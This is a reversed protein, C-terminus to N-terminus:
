QWLVKERKRLRWTIIAIIMLVLSPFLTIFWRLFLRMGSGTDNLPRDTVVKSRITILIEDQTLWDLINMFLVMGPPNIFNPDIYKATGSVLLRADGTATSMMNFRGREETPLPFGLFKDTNMPNLSVPKMRVWSDETSFAIENGGAVPQVFPMIILDLDRTVPHEDSLHTAKVFYPYPITTYSQMTYEDQQPRIAIMENQPDMILGSDVAIGYSAIFAHINQLNRPFARFLQFNITFADLLFAVPRGTDLYARVTNLEEVEFDIRPGAIVLADCTLSLTDKLDVVQTRYQRQVMALLQDTAPIEDHETTFGIAKLEHIVLRKIRSTVDYEFHGLDEVVPIVERRDRYLFVLGMFGQKIGMETQSLETFQLPMIGNRQADAIEDRNQPSIHEIKIRGGSHHRYEALLDNIYQARDHYPFPLESTIYAKIVVNDSLTRVMDISARGLSYIGGETLDSRVYFQQSVLNVLIIIVGVLVSYMVNFIREKIKGVFYLAGFLFACTLSVFYIVDRSDVIGKILNNLHYDIGLYSFFSVLPTPIVVLLKGIIFFFFSIIIGIIFAIIQSSTLSSAFVGIAVFFLSLLFLGLYSSFVAGWDVDGLFGVTVPYVLTMVLGLSMLVVAALWKGIVIEHNRV